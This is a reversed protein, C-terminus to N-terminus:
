GELLADNRLRAVVSRILEEPWGSETAVDRLTRTGDLLALVAAALPDLEVNKHLLSTVRDGDKIQLRSLASAKPRDSGKASWSIPVSRLEALGHRQLNVLGETVAGESLPDGSEPEAAERVLDVVPVTAPWARRLRLLVPELNSARIVDPLGSDDRGPPAQAHLDLTAKPGYGRRLPTGAHVLLTQRLTRERLTDLVTERDVDPLSSLTDRLAAPIEEPVFLEQADAFPVLGSAGARRAFERYSFPENEEEMFDHLLGADNEGAVERAREALYLAWPSELEFVNAALLSLRERARKVRVRPDREGEAGDLLIDRILARFRWGPLANYSVFAVGGPNMHDRCVDLVRARVTEPVWSYLGHAIVYDFGGLSAEVGRLDAHRLEINRIGLQAIRRRGEEIQRESFDLGVFSAGPLVYAMGILNDGSACGLELVRASAVPNPVLGFLRATVAIRDPYTLRHVLREYPVADYSDRLRDPGPM